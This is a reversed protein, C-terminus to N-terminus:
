QAGQQDRVRQPVPPKRAALFFLASVGTAIGIILFPVQYSGLADYLVGALIPGILSGAMTLVNSWGAISGLNRRGFYDARIAMMLPGRSGWGLGHMVVAAAVAWPAATFALLIMAGSHGFMAIGAVIRKSFLDGLIGGGIQGTIQMVMIGTFVFAAATISWGSDDVLYPTLHVPITTVVLLAMGHGLTIFWFSRDRMAERVTFDADESIRQKGDATEVPADGDPQLGYDEPRRRFMLSAPVGILLVAIGSFVLTERWGFQAISWGILPVIIGGSAFGVSTMSMARTRKRVFWHAIATNVTLFGALGTGIALFIFAIYVHWLQQIASLIFFGAAFSLTGALMVPRPGFRDIMWGQIPGLVGSEVRILSFAVSVSGRSWGFAREWETLYLGQSLFLMSSHLIQSCFAAAVIFWGYFIRSRLPRRNNPTSM